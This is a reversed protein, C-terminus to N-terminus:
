LPNPVVPETHEGRSAVQGDGGLYYNANDSDGSRPVFGDSDSDFVPIADRVEDVYQKNAAQNDTDPSSIGDLKLDLTGQQFRAM